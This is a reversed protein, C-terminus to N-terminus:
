ENRLAELPDVEMARHAPLFSAFSAVATLLLAIAAFSVPDSGSVDFLISAVVRGAGFALVLGIRVGAIRGISVSPDLLGGHREPRRENM